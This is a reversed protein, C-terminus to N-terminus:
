KRKEIEAEIAKIISEAREKQNKFLTLTASLEPSTLSEVTLGGLESFGEHDPEQTEQRGIERKAM